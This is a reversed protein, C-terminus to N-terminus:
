LRKYLSGTSYTFIVSASSMAFCLLQCYTYLLSSKWVFLHQLGRCPIHAQGSAEEAFMPHASKKLVYFLVLMVVVIIQLPGIGVMPIIPFPTSLLIIKDHDLGLM